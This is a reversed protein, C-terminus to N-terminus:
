REFTSKAPLLVQFAEKLREAKDEFNETRVNDNICVVGHKGDSVANCAEQFNSEKLHYCYGLKPHRPIFRGSALQWFKMLWQNVNTQQRFKDRCTNDLVSFEKEWVENFTSKLFSNATHQYFFGPFWPWPMLLTTKVINRFGNKPNYWKFINKKLAEKKSFNSNIVTAIAGNIHGVSDKGFFIADQAFTDCPLGKKFFDEPKVYATVFTDDNFYVFHESLGNIRHLNLEITHSNFTPLYKEPIFEEHRVVKLKPNDTNM